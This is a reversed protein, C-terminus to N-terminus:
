ECPAINSSHKRIGAQRIRPLAHAGPFYPLQSDSRSFASFLAAFVLPGIGQALAKAGYLAGQITGQWGRM